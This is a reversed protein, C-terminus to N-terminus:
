AIADIIANFIACPRMAKATKSPDPDYYGGIDM